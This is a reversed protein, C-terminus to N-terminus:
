RAAPAEGSASASGQPAKRDRYSRTSASFAARTARALAGCLAGDRASTGDGGGVGGRTAMPWGSRAAASLGLGNRAGQQYKAVRRRLCAGSVGGQRPSLSTTTSSSPTNASSSAWGDRARRSRCRSCPRGTWAAARAGTLPKCRSRTGRATGLRSGRGRRWHPGFRDGQCEGAVSWARRGGHVPRWGRQDHGDAAGCPGRRRRRPSRRHLLVGSWCTMGRRDGLASIPSIDGSWCIPTAPVVQRMIRGHGSANVSAERIEWVGAQDAFYDAESYLAHGDFNDSYPLPFPAAAPPTPYAGKAGGAYTTLTYLSDVEVTLSFSGGVVAVDPQREFFTSASVNGFDHHTRYLKLTKTGAFTGGLVFTAVEDSTSYPPLSPRICKSHDHSMKEIVITFAGSPDGPKEVLAMRGARHLHGAGSGHRLYYWGPQSFQTTHASGWIPSTVDYHGTWPYYASMLADSTYPLNDYYSAVLNWSITSTMNGNVYNQNLIRAWCGGGALDNFTSYDESAWLPKQTEVAASTSTTGPYHAGIGWVANALDTCFTGTRGLQTRRSSRRRSCAQQTWRAGANSTRSTTTGSMGSASTTM